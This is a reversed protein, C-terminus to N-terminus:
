GEANSEANNEDAPAEGRLRARLRDREARRREGADALTATARRRLPGFAWMGLPMSIILGGLAAVTLPFDAVGLLRGAGYIVGTVVVVLLLRAAVYLLVYAVGRGGSPGKM